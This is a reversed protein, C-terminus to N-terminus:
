KEELLKMAAANFAGHFGFSNYTKIDHRNYIKLLSPHEVAFRYATHVDAFKVGMDLMKKYSYCCTFWDEPTILEGAPIHPQFQIKSNYELTKASYLFKKSRLSFGGNGVNNLPENLWPAGIYDYNFFEDSWLTSDIIFGDGQFTLCFDTDILSPLEYLSFLCYQEKNLPKIKVIDIDPISVVKNSFIKVSGFDAYKMCHRAAQIIGVLYKGDGCVSTLTINKLNLKGM